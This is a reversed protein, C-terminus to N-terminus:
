FDKSEASPASTREAEAASEEDQLRYNSLMGKLELAKEYLAESAFGNGTFQLNYYEQNADNRDKVPKARFGVAQMPRGSNQHLQIKDNLGKKANKIQSRTLSLVAPGLDLHNPLLVLYDYFLTAAPPSNVNEPDQTGWKDLGSKVVDVDSITWKVLPRDKFKVEWSGVRDWTTFSDARALVGQGDEMPAVLLYRKNRSCVVFDLTDGLNEDMGTHWFRGAKATEFAECEKSTAQLLKIRPIVVDNSDFNDATGLPGDNEMAMLYSPKAGELAAVVNDTKKIEAVATSDTKTAM